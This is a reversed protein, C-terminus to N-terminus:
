RKWPRLSDVVGGRSRHMPIPQSAPSTAAGSSAHGQGQGRHDDGVAQVGDVPMDNDFVCMPIPLHPPFNIYDEYTIQRGKWVAYPNLQANASPRQARLRGDGRAQRTSRLTGKTPSPRAPAEWATDTSPPLAASGSAMRGSVQRYRVGAPHHRDPHCPRQQVRGRGLAM